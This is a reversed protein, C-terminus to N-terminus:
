GEGRSQAAPKTVFLDDAHGISGAETSLVCPLAGCESYKLRFYNPANGLDGFPGARPHPLLPLRRYSNVGPRGRAPEDGPGGPAPRRCTDLLAGADRDLLRDVADLGHGDPRACAELLGPVRDVKAASM